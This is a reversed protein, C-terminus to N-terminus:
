QKRAPAGGRARRAREALAEDVIALYDRRDSPATIVRHYEREAARREADTPRFLTPLVTPKSRSTRVQPEISAAAKLDVVVLDYTGTALARGLEDRTTVTRTRHGAHGLDQLLREELTAPLSGGPDAFVLIAGPPSGKARRPRVRAVVLLKDGCAVANQGSALVAGALGTALVARNM